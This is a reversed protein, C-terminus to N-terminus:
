ACGVQQLGLVDESQVLPKGVSEGSGRWAAEHADVFGLHQSQRLGVLNESQIQEVDNARLALFEHPMGPAWLRGGYALFHRRKNFSVTQAGCAPFYEVDFHFRQGSEDALAAEVERAFQVGHVLLVEDDEGTAGDVKRSEFAQSSSM